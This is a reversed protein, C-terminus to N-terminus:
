DVHFRLRPTEHTENADTQTKDHSTPTPAFKYDFLVRRGGERVIGVFSDIRVPGPRGASSGPLRLQIAAFFASAFVNSSIHLANRGEGPLHLMLGGVADDFINEKHERRERAAM